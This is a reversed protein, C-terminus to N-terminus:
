LHRVAPRSASPSISRGFRKLMRKLLTPRFPDNQRSSLRARAAELRLDSLHDSLQQVTINSYPQM